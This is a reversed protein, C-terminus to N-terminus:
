AAPNHNQEEAKELLMELWDKKQKTGTLLEM